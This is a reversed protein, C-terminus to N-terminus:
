DMKNEECITRFIVCHYLNGIRLLSNNRKRRFLVYGDFIIYKLRAYDIREDIKEYAVDYWTSNSDM